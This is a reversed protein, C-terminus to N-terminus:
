RHRTFRLNQPPGIRVLDISGNSAIASNGMDATAAPEAGFHRPRVAVIVPPDSSTIRPVGPSSTM